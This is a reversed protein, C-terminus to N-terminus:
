DNSLEIRHNRQLNIIRTACLITLQHSWQPIAWSSQSIPPTASSWSSPSQGEVQSTSFVSWGSFGLHFVLHWRDGEMVQSQKDWDRLLRQEEKNNIEAPLRQEENIKPKLRQQTLPEVKKIPNLRKIKTWLEQKQTRFMDGENQRESQLSLEEKNIQEKTHSRWICKWNLSLQINM